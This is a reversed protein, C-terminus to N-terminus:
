INSPKKLKHVVPPDVVKKQRGQSKKPLVPANLKSGSVPKESGSKSSCCASKVPSKVSGSSSKVATVASSGLGSVSKKQFVTGVSSTSSGVDSGCESRSPHSSVRSETYVRPLRNVFNCSSYEADFAKRREDLFTDYLTM